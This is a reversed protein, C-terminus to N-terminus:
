QTLKSGDKRTALRNETVWTKKREIGHEGLLELLRPVTCDPNAAILARADDDRGDRNAKRGAVHFALIAKGEGARTLIGTERDGVVEFPEVGEYDRKKIHRIFSASEYENDPDQLRTGHADTLAAGLEGSGRICNELTLEDASKTTKPSHYLVMIAGDPGQMRQAAFLVESFGHMATSSQEDAGAMFRIATDIILISGELAEEPLDAIELNGLNMSRFFLSKGVEHEIGMKKLRNSMSILGMEPCLYVIRKPRNVVPLFGFLPEGTALSRIMNMMILSKRQGVPAALACIAQKALWNEIFFTPPPCNLVDDLTHFLTRWDAIVPKEETEKPMPLGTGLTVTPGEGPEPKHSGEVDGIAAKFIVTNRKAAKCTGHSCEFALRGDLIGLVTSSVVGEGSSHEEVWPCQIGLWWGNPAKKEYDRLEVNFHDVYGYLWEKWGDAVEDSVVDANGFQRKEPALTKVWEPIPQPTRAWDGNDPDWFKYYENGSPHISGAAMVYGGDARIDGSLGDKSWGASSRSGDAQFYLQLGFEPRRGTRVAYTLTLRLWDPWQDSDESLGHDVDVVLLGSAGTAIGVNADPKAEWWRRIVAEDNSADLFGRPALGALPRKDRPVCPFVFWGRRICGLAVELMTM